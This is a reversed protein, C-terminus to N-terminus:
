RNDEPIQDMPSSRSSLSSSINDPYSNQGSGFQKVGNIHVGNITSSLSMRHMDVKVDDVGESIIENPFSEQWAKLGGVLIVPPRKLINSHIANEYIIRNVISMPSISPGFTQSDNDYLVVLDFDERKRFHAHESAPAVAM